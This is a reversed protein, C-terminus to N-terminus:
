THKSVRVPRSSSFWTPIRVTVKWGTSVSKRILFVQTSLLAAYYLYPLWQFAGFGQTDLLVVAAMVFVDIVLAVKIALRLNASFLRGFWTIVKNFAGGLEPKDDRGIDLAVSLPVSRWVTLFLSGIVVYIVTIISLLFAAAGIPSDSFIEAIWEQSVVWEIISSGVWDTLRLTLFALIVSYVLLALMIPIYRIFRSTAFGLMSLPNSNFVVHSADDVTINPALNQAQTPAVPAHGRLTQSEPYISNTVPTAPTSPTTNEASVPQPMGQVPTQEIPAPTPTPAAEPQPAVEPEPVAATTPSSIHAAEMGPTTPAIVVKNQATPMPQQPAPEPAAMSPDTPQEVPVAAPQQAAAEQKLVSSRDKIIQPRNNPDISPPAQAADAAQKATVTDPTRGLLIDITQTPHGAIELNRAIEEDEVGQSRMNSVFKKLGEQDM